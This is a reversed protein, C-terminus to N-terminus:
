QKTLPTKCDGFNDREDYVQVNPGQGPVAVECNFPGGTCPSAPSLIACVPHATNTWYYEPDAFKANVKTFAASAFAVTVCAIGLFIKVKKM